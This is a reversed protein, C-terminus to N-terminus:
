VVEDKLDNAILTLLQTAIEKKSALPISETNQHKNIYTVVNTDGEFGAGEAAINNIVIADLNKYALKRLGNEIPEESEAAFGVLFQGEKREGLSHLIDKTREMAVQWEGDQKKMKQDYIIKPRYDAVAAAKIVIDNSAFNAHMAQYMEEATLIDIRNIQPHSVVQSTPGAILTVEAGAQAAAEALAFGMKGSSRNTFFRVPDVKERTPGASILVHKGQLFREKDDVNGEAKKSLQHSEITEIITAPEELRGKGVYGCALYGAGPEIFHYGWGDLQKMNQIVAPHAYMHVNMAPAIYVDAQTALLITSLMDDAIGNALKGIANATAPALIAIDAWDAIDIHAIKAPDKEDFTDTYVAHRSLAQFTLPSVFKTANETMVVKVNAGKQTLKSTLACAKYAAIGGTVGLLINKQNVM